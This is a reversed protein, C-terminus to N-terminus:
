SFFSLCHLYLIGGTDIFRVIVGIVNSSLYVDDIYQSWQKFLNFTTNITMDNKQWIYWIVFATDNGPLHMYWPTILDDLQVTTMM